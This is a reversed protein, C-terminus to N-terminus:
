RKRAERKLRAVVEAPATFLGRGPVWVAWGEERLTGFARAATGRGIGHDEAIRAETPLKRDPALDGSMIADRLQRALQEWLPTASLPDLKLNDM